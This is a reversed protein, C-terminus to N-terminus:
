WDESDISTAQLEALTPDLRSPQEAYVADLRQRVDQFRQRELYDAIARQYLESRSLGLRQALREAADFLPDPISIATKMFM